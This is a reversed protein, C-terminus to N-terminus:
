QAAPATQSLALGEPSYLVPCNIVIRTYVLAVEQKEEADLVEEQSRLLRPTHGAQWSVQIMQWLPTYEPNGNSSGSPLPLASLINGQKFNTIAFVRAVSSSRGPTRAADAPPLADALRPAYHVGLEQAVKQDSADTTIYAVQQGDAWGHVLPVRAQAADHWGPLPTSCATLFLLSFTTGLTAFTNRSGLTACTACTAGTARIALSLGARCAGFCSRRFSALQFRM